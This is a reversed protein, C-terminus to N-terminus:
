KREKRGESIRLGRIENLHLVLTITPLLKLVINIYDFIKINKEEAILDIMATEEDLAEEVFLSLYMDQSVYTFVMSILLITAAFALSVAIREKWSNISAMILITVFPFVVQIVNIILSITIVPNRENFVFMVVYLFWELFVQIVFSVIPTVVTMVARKKNNKDVIKFIFLYGTFFLYILIEIGYFILM